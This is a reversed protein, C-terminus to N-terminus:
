IKNQFHGEQVARVSKNEMKQTNRLCASGRGRGAGTWFAVELIGTEREKETSECLSM